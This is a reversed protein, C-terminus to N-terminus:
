GAHPRAPFERMGAAGRAHRSSTTGRLSSHDRDNNAFGATSWKSLLPIAWALGQWDGGELPDALPHARRKCDQLKLNQWLVTWNLLM